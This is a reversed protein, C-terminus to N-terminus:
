ETSNRLNREDANLEADKDARECTPCYWDRWMDQELLDDCERCHPPEDAFLPDEDGPRGMCTM